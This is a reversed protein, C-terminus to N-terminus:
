LQKTQREAAIITHRALISTTVTGVGGPVPTIAAALPDAEEFIVDGCLKQKQESWGIGADIVIQGPKIYSTGISDTKGTAAVLIDAEQALTDAAVTKTHCLTVTANKHLLLMAAPRGVVLSRGLVVIRKGAPNIGYFFLIETVAEATCPAFGVPSNTFVGALSLDTCGDVDKEPSISLRAREEDLHKPLPRLLLIGHVTPDSNLSKLEAFFTEEAVKANLHVKRVTIGAEICRKEIGREYSIDDPREGVRLVALTPMIGKKQLQEARQKTDATIGAAVPGGKLLKEM